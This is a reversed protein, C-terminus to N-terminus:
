GFDEELTEYQLNTFNKKLDLDVSEIYFAM